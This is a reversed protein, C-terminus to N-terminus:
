DEWHNLFRIGQLLLEPHSSGGTKGSGSCRQSAADLRKKEAAELYMDISGVTFLRKM